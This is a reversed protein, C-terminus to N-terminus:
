ADLRVLKKSGEDKRRVGFRTGGSRGTPRSGTRGSSNYKRGSGSAKARDFRSPNAARYSQRQARLDGARTMSTTYPRSYAPAYNPRFSNALMSGVLMGSAISLFPSHYYGYVPGHGTTQVQATGEGKIERRITFIKEEDEVAGNSNKDFFGTVVQVKDDLDQVSVSVIESGEYIENVRREFDEPGEALKYAENVKDWDIAVSTNETTAWRETPEQGKDCGATALAVALFPVAIRTLKAM